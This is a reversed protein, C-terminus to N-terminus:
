VEKNTTLYDEISRRYNEYFSMKVLIALEPYDKILWEFLEITHTQDLDACMLLWDAFLNPTVLKLQYLPEFYLWWNGKSFYNYTEIESGGLTFNKIFGQIMELQYAQTNKIKNIAVLDHDLDIISDAIGQNSRGNESQYDSQQESLKELNSEILIVMNQIWKRTWDHTNQM